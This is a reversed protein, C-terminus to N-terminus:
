SIKRRDEMARELTLSDVYEFDAGIPLGNAIRSVIINLGALVRLIYLSTTEGEISPKLALIIEKIDKSNIRKALSNINIDDPNIGDLPSILGGLVHYMGHFSGTKELAVVDKFEEVVCIVKKDRAEDLCVYCEGNETLNHCVQCEKVRRNVNKLSESFAELDAQEFNLTHLAFREATKEGVGPLKRYSDILKKISNPYM